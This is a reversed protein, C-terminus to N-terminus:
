RSTSIPAAREVHYGGELVSVVRGSAHERAVNCLEETVWEYDEELM